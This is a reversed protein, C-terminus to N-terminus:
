YNLKFYGHSIYNLWIDLDHRCNDQTDVGLLTLCIFRSRVVVNHIHRDDCAANEKVENKNFHSLFCLVTLLQSDFLDDCFVYFFSTGTLQVIFLFEVHQDVLWASDLFLDVATESLSAEMFKTPNNERVSELVENGHSIFKHPSTNQGKFGFLPFFILLEDSFTLGSEHM